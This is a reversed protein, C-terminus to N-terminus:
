LFHIKVLLRYEIQHISNSMFNFYTIKRNIQFKNM